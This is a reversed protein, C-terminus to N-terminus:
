RPFRPSPCCAPCSFCSRGFLVDRRSRPGAPIYPHLRVLDVLGAVILAALFAPYHRQARRKMFDLFAPRNRLLIGYILFGSLVFFLEVGNNGYTRFASAFALTAGGLHGDEIFQRCYHQLFVLIVAIGRMGEMPKIRAHSEVEFADGLARLRTKLGCLRQEFKRVIIFKSTAAAGGIYCWIVSEPLAGRYDPVCGPIFNAGMTVILWRASVM